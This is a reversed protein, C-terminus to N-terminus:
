RQGFPQSPPPSSFYKLVLLMRRFAVGAEKGENRVEESYGAAIRMWHTPPTPITPIMGPKSVMLYPGVYIHTFTGNKIADCDNDTFFSGLDTTPAGSGNPKYPKASSDM